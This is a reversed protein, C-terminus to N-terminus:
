GHAQFCGRKRRMFIVIVIYCPLSLFYENILKAAENTPQNGCSVAAM